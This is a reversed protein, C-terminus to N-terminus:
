FPNYSIFFFFNINFTVIIFYNEGYNKKRERYCASGLKREKPKRQLKKTLPHNQILKHGSIM